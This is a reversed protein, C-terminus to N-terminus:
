SRHRRRLFLGGASLALLGLASPEPIPAITGGVAVNDLFLHHGGGAGTGGTFSLQIIATGGAELTSDALGTLDLDIDDHQNHVGALTDDTILGGGLHTIAGSTSTFVTGVTIDSGPLVNLAYTRAANPRFALADFNFSELIIDTAGNNLITLTIEGDTKGNTLTLNAAGINTLSSAPTGLSM